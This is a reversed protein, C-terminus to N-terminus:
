LFHHAEQPQLLQRLVKVTDPFIQDKPLNTIDEWSFWTFPSLPKKNELPKALFIFDIHKHAPTDKYAPIDELLCLYPRRISKCNPEKELWINEQDMFCIDLDTEEKVERIAAEEPTENEELHGGPPLYKQLKKHFHLLVKDQSFIYVTAVFEKKM